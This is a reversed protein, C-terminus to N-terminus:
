PIAVTLQGPVSIEIVGGATCMLKSADNLAPMGGVLVTPAGPTWPASTMPVCPMPTLVGQAAATAAAVQPNGLSSCMAFSTVNVMPKNDMISAAAMGTTVGSQPLVNLTGPAAGFSCKLLAGGCVQQGMMGRLLAKIREFLAPAAEAHGIRKGRRDYRAPEEVPVGDRYHVEEMLAGDPWFRRVAGHLLNARYTCRQVVTGHGDRDVAEGDLLGNRYVASRVERGEHYFTAPGDPKGAAFTLRATVQGAEDYSLSPGSAVGDAMEQAAVRRGNVFTEMLGHAAGHRFEGRQVLAGDPGYARMTGHLKGHAFHAALAPLGAPGYEEYDGHLAGGAMACRLLLRGTDDREEITTPVGDM